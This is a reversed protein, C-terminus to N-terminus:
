IFTQGSKSYAPWNPPVFIRESDTKPIYSGGSIRKSDVKPISIEDLAKRARRVEPTNEGKISIEDISTDNSM